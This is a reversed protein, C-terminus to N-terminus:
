DTTLAITFDSKVHRFNQVFLRNQKGKAYEDAKKNADLKSKELMANKVVSDNREKEIALIKKM